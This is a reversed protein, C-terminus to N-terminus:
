AHALPARRADDALLSAPADVRQLSGAGGAALQFTRVLSALEAARASLDEASASSEEAHSANRQTVEGVQAVATEIEGIGEAQRRGAQVLEGVIATVKGVAAGIESLREDVRRAVAQGTETQKVSERILTDTKSAAEKSRLALNRVEEAVVAFGRGAAGARAAEVAANLALLNTQFAIENIDKIIASTGEASARIRQMAGNMEAVAEQGHTAADAASRALADAQGASEASGRTVEAITALQASTEELTSAQEGAGEAVQQSVQAIQGAAANVADVSGSVQLLAEELARATEDIRAQLRAYDGQFRGQVRATLDRSALREVAAGAASVPTTFADLAGNVGEVIARFDGQHRAPDARVDLRGEVGARALLTADAVLAKVADICGNLADRIALFDGHAATEIKAPIDGRSIRTVHDATLEIPGQYADMAANWGEVIPRLEAEIAAADGRQSLRGQAVAARLRASEAVVAQVTRGVRRAGIWTVALVAATAAAALGLLQLLLTRVAAFKVSSPVTWALVWGWPAFRGHTIWSPEGAVDDEATGVDVGRAAEVWKAGALDAAGPALKPHLIVKGERDLVVLHAESGAAGKALDELVTKQAGAVYAEIGDLGNKALAAQESAIRALAAALRDRYLLDDKAKVIRGVSVGIVVLLTALTAVLAVSQVLAIRTRAYM